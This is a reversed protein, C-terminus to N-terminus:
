SVDKLDVSPARAYITQMQGPYSQYSSIFGNTYTGDDEV